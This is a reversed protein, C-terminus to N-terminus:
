FEGHPPIDVGYSRAILEGQIEFGRWVWRGFGRIPHRVKRHKARYHTGRPANYQQWTLYEGMAAISADLERLDRKM